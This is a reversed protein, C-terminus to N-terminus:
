WESRFARGLKAENKTDVIIKESNSGAATPFRQQGLSNFIFRKETGSLNIVYVYLTFATM